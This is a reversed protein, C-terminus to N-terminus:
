NKKFILSYKRYNDVIQNLEDLYFAHNNDPYIRNKKRTGKCYIFISSVEFFNLFNLTNKDNNHNSYGIPLNYKKRLFNIRNFNLEKLDYTMPTHLLTKKNNRLINLCNIINTNNSKVGLSIFIPKKKVKLAKILDTNDIAVGLLKYFDVNLHSYKKFTEICCVSLGFKKGVKHTKKICTNYFKSNLCFDLNKKNSMM